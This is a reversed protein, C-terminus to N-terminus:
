QRAPKAVTLRWVFWAALGLLGIGATNFFAIAIDDLENPGSVWVAATDIGAPVGYGLAFAGILLMASNPIQGEHGVLNSVVAAAGALLWAIGAVILVIVTADVASTTFGNHASDSSKALSVGLGAVLGVLAAVAALLAHASKLQDTLEDAASGPRSADESM